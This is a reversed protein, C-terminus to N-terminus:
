RRIKAIRSYTLLGFAIGSFLLIDWEQWYDSEIGTTIDDLAAWDLGLIALLLIFFIAKRLKM